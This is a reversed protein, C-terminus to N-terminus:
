FGLRSWFWHASSLTQVKKVKKTCEWELEWEEPEVQNKLPMDYKKTEKLVHRDIRRQRLKEWKQQKSNMPVDEVTIPKRGQKKRTIRRKHRRQNDRM